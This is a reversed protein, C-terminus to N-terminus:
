SKAKEAQEVALRALYASLVKGISDALDKAISICEEYGSSHGRDYAQSSVFGAFEEPLDGLIDDMEAVYDEVTMSRRPLTIEMMNIRHLHIQGDKITQKMIPVEVVITEKRGQTEGSKQIVKTALERLDTKITRSCPDFVSAYSHKKYQAVYTATETKVRM